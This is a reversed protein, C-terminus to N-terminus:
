GVQEEALERKKFEPIYEDVNEGRSRHIQKLVELAACMGKFLADEYKPHKKLVERLSNTYPMGIDEVMNAYKNDKMQPIFSTMEESITLLLAGEMKKLDSYDYISHAWSNNYRRAQWALTGCFCFQKNYPEIEGKFYATIIRDYAQQYTLHQM